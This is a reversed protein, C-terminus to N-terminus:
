RQSGVDHLRQYGVIDGLQLILKLVPTSLIKRVVFARLIVSLHSPKFVTAVVSGFRTLLHSNQISLELVNL